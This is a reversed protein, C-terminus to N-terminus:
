IENQNDQYIVPFSLNHKKYFDYNFELKNHEENWKYSCDGFHKIQYEYKEKGNYHLWTMHKIHAINKPIKSESLSKYNIEINNHEYIIDNDWYFHKIKKILNNKFIRPPCFDDIWQDGDFIYNKFNISFWDYLDNKQIYNIIKNIEELKYYEDSLDLLWVYEVSEKLLPRLAHNRSESETFQSESTYLYQILNKQKLSDLLDLTKSNDSIKFHEFPCSVFSFILNNNLAALFWPQLRKDLNDACNYGCGLIGIKM